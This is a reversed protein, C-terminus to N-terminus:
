NNGDNDMKFVVPQWYVNTCTLQTILESADYHVYICNQKVRESGRDSFKDEWSVVM